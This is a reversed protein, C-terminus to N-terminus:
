MSTKVLNSLMTNYEPSTQLILRFFNDMALYENAYEFTACAQDSVLTSSNKIRIWLDIPCDKIFTSQHRKFMAELQGMLKSLISSEVRLNALWQQTITIDGIGPENFLLDEVKQIQTKYKKGWSSTDHDQLKM